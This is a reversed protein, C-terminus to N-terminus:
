CVTASTTGLVELPANSSYHPHAQITNKLNYRQPKREKFVKNTNNNPQLLGAAPHKVRRFKLPLKVAGDSGAVRGSRQGASLTVPV